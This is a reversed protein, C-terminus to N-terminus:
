WRITRCRSSWPAMGSSTTPSSSRARVPCRSRGNSTTRITRSTPTSSSSISRAAREAPLTAASSRRASASISSACRRRARHQRAGCERTQPQIRAHRRPRGGAARAGALDHQLRWANRDRPDPARRDGARASEPAKGPAAHGSRRYVARPARMSRPTARVVRYSLSTLWHDVATWPDETMRRDAHVEIRILPDYARRHFSTSFSALMSPKWLLMLWSAECFFMQSLSIGSRTPIPLDPCAM